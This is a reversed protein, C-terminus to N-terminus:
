KVTKLGFQFGVAIDDDVTVPNYLDALAFRGIVDTTVNATVAFVNIQIAPHEHRPQNIGM